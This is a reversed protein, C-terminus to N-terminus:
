SLGISQCHFTSRKTHLSIGGEKEKAKFSKKKSSPVCGTTWAKEKM